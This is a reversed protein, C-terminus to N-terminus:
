RSIRVKETVFFFLFIFFLIFNTELLILTLILFFKIVFIQILGDIQAPGIQAHLLMVCKRENKRSM